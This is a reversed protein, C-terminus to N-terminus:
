LIARKLNEWRIPFIFRPRPNEVIYYKYRHMLPTKKYTKRVMINVLKQLLNSEGEFM